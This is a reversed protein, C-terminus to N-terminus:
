NYLHCVKCMKQRVIRKFQVNEQNLVLIKEYMIERVKRVNIQEISLIKKECPIWKIRLSPSLCKRVTVFEMADFINWTWTKNIGTCM